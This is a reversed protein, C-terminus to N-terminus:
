ACYLVYVHTCVYLQGSRALVGALVAYQDICMCVYFVQITKSRLVCGVSIHLLNVSM